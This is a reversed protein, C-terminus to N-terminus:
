AAGETTVKLAVRQAFAALTEAEHDSSLRKLLEAPDAGKRLLSSLLIGADEMWGKLTTGDKTGAIFIAWIGGTAPDLAVDVFVTRPESGPPSWKGQERLTPFRNSKGMLGM